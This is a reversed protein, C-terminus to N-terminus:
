ECQGFKARQNKEQLKNKKQVREDLEMDSPCLSWRIFQEKCQGAKARHDKFSTMFLISASVVM